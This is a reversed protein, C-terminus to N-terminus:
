AVSCLNFPVHIAAVIDKDQAKLPPSASELEMHRDAVFLFRANNTVTVVLLAKERLEPEIKRFAKKVLRAKAYDDTLVHLVQQDWKDQPVVHRDSYYVCRLKKRILKLADEMTYELHYKRAYHMARTVSVAVLREKSGGCSTPVAMVYDTKTSMCMGIPRIGDWEGAAYSIEMETKHLRANSFVRRLIEISAVESTVSNGGANPESLLGAGDSSLALSCHTNRLPGSAHPLRFTASHSYICGAKLHRRLKPSLLNHPTSIITRLRAAERSFSKVIFGSKDVITTFSSSRNGGPAGVGAESCPAPRPAPPFFAKGNADCIVRAANIIGPQGPCFAARAPHFRRRRRSPESLAAGDEGPLFVAGLPALHPACSAAFAVGRKEMGSPTITNVMTDVRPPPEM